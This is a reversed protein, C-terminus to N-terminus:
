NTGGVRHGVDTHGGTSAVCGSGALIPALDGLEGRIEVAVSRHGGTDLPFRDTM